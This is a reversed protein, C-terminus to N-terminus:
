FSLHFHPQGYERAVNTFGCDNTAVERLIGEEVNVSIDVARKKYHLSTYEHQCGNDCLQCPAVCRDGIIEAKGNYLNDDTISTVTITDGGTKKNYESGLCNLKNILTPSADRLQEDQFKIESNSLAFSQGKLSVSEIAAPGRITKCSLVNTPAGCVQNWDEGFIKATTSINAGAGSLGAVTINTIMWAGFIVIIGFITGTIVRKGRDVLTANGSSILLFTGGVIFMLLALAGSTAMIADGINTVVVILDCLSCNGCQLCEASRTQFITFQASAPLPELFLTLIGIKFIWLAIIQKKM